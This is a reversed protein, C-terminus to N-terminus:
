PNHFEIAQAEAEADSLRNSANGQAAFGCTLSRQQIRAQISGALVAGAADSVSAARAFCRTAQDYTQCAQQVIAYAPRLRAGPFGIRSLERSCGRTATELRTMEARTMNLNGAAFPQDVQQHMRGIAAIWALEAATMPTATPSASASPSPTRHRAATLGARHGACGCALLALVVVAAVGSRMRRIGRVAREETTVAAGGRITM